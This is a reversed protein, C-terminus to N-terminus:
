KLLICYNGLIAGRSVVHCTLVSQLRFSRKSRNGFELTEYQKSPPHLKAAHIILSLCQRLLIFFWRCKWQNKENFVFRNLFIYKQLLYNSQEFFSDLTQIRKERKPSKKWSDFLPRANQGAMTGSILMFEIGNRNMWSFVPAMSTRQASRSTM